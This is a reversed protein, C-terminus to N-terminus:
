LMMMFNHGGDDMGAFDVKEAGPWPGMENPPPAPDFIQEVTMGLLKAGILGSPGEGAAEVKSPPPASEFGEKDMSM